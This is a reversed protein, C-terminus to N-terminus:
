QANWLINDMEKAGIVMDTGSAMSNNMETTLADVATEAIVKDMGKWRM